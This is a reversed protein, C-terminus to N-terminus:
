SLAGGSKEIEKVYEKADEFWYELGHYDESDVFMRDIVDPTFKYLRVVSRIM